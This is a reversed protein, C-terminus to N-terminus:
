LIHNCENRAQILVGYHNARVRYHGDTPISKEQKLFDNKAGM